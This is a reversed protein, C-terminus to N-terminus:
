GCLSRQVLSNRIIANEFRYNVAGAICFETQQPGRVERM